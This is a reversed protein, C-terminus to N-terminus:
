YTDQSARLDEEKQQASDIELSMLQFMRKAELGSLNGSINAVVYPIDASVNTKSNEPNKKVEMFLGVVPMERKSASKYLHSVSELSPTVIKKWRQGSVFNATHDTDIQM